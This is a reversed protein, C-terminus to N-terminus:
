TNWILWREKIRKLELNEDVLRGYKKKSIWMIKKRELGNTGGWHVSVDQYLPTFNGRKIKWSTRMIYCLAYYPPMNNHPQSNGTNNISGSLSGSGTITHTHAGAPQTNVVNGMRYKDLEFTSTGNETNTTCLIGHTHEGSESIQLNRLNISFNNSHSHSPMENISLTHTAEGGTNGVNYSTGAGVVFRNRLDPTGNTGDCLQWNIPISTENGSWLIIGGIPIEVNTQGLVAGYGM